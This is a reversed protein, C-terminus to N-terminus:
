IRKPCHVNCIRLGNELAYNVAVSILLRHEHITGDRIVPHSAYFSNFQSALQLLHRVLVVPNDDRSADAVKEPLEHILNILSTELDTLKVFPIEAASSIDKGHKEFISRARCATYIVYAGGAKEFDEITQTLSAGNIEVSAKLDKRLDNFVVSGVALSRSTADVDEPRQSGKAAFKEAFYRVSEDLLNNVNAAGERSSLKKKSAADVYFGFYIHKLIADTNVAGIKRAAEFVSDFHERQEQGAVYIVRSAGFLERRAAIAGLDRTAYISRGDSRLVVLREGNELPVVTAGIDRQISEAAMQHEEATLEGLRLKADIERNADAARESTWKMMSGSKIGEDILKRADQLYFSEGLTFDLHINLASYFTEFDSLSWGVMDRWQAVLKPEGRELKEAAVDAAASFEAFQERLHEMDRVTIFRELFERDQRPIDNYEGSLKSASEMTRRLAYLDKLLTHPPTTAPFSDKWRTYGELLYGFGGIDNIHNVRYVTAGCAEHLNALVHGSITSRIHGAHLQKAANPSSYDLVIKEGRETDVMGFRSGLNKVSELSQLIFHDKLKLNVFQGVLTIDEIANACTQCSELSANIKPAVEQHFDKPGYQKLLAPVKVTLDAQFRDRNVPSVIVAMQASFARSIAESIKLKLHPLPYTSLGVYEASAARSDIAEIKTKTEARLMDNVIQLGDVPEFQSHALDELSGTEARVSKSSVQAVPSIGVGITSQPVASPDANPTDNPSASLPM